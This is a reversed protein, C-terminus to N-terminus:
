LKKAKYVYMIALQVRMVKWNGFLNFFVGAFMQAILLAMAAGAAGYKPILIYNLVANIILAIISRYLQLVQRGDAVFMQSSIAGMYVFVVAWISIVLVHASALFAEGYFVLIIWDALLTTTIALALAGWVVIRGISVIGEFYALEGEEKRLQLFKPFYVGLITLGVFYWAESLRLAASYIGVEEDGVMHGLMLQDIRMYLMIVAGSLLLPLAHKATSLLSELSVASAGQLSEKRWMFWYVLGVAILELSYAAGLWLIDASYSLAALRILFGTISGVILGYASLVARGQSNFYWEVISVPMVLHYLSIVFLLMRAEPDVLWLGALNALAVSLIAASARLWFARKLYNRSNEPEEALWKVLLSNLGFNNLFIFVSALAYCYMLNGLEGPGLFRALLIMSTLQTAMKILKEILMASAGSRFSSM